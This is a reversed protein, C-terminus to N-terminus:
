TLFPYLDSESHANRRQSTRIDAPIGIRYIYRTPARTEGVGAVAHLESFEEVDTVSRSLGDETHYPDAGRTHRSLAIEPEFTQTGLGVDPIEIERRASIVLREHLLDDDGVINLALEERSV